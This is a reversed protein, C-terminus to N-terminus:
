LGLKEGITDIVDEAFEAVAGLPDERRAKKDLARLVKDPTVPLETIWVGVADHIANVIAPAPANATMEGIGKAGYPGHTSPCEYIASEIEPIDMTTPILYDGYTEPQWDLTPYFPALDEMLAAGVGMAAGGEIQGEALLPNIARGVDYSTVLRLLDVEGSVTDVEVEAMVAAWALTAFPDVEGTDPEPSASDRMFHGRGVVLKRQGRVADDAVDAIPVFHDPAGRVYIKGDAAELDEPSAELMESAVEFLISRAERAARVTANGAVFTVRSAFTGWCMPSADTDANFVTVQDYALGLEEAAMQALVTKCGQGIDCSGVVLDVTGDAKVKVIAQSPDGGGSM